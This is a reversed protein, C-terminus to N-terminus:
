KRKKTLIDEGYKWRITEDEEESFGNLERFTEIEAQKIEEQERQIAYKEDM